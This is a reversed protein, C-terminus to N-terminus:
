SSKKQHKIILQRILMAKTIGLKRSEKELFNLLDPSIFFNFRRDRLKQAKQFTINVVKEIENNNKYFQLILKENKVQKFFLYADNKESSLIITPKNLELSKATLFGIPSSSHTIEFVCLDSQQIMKLPKTLSNESQNKSFYFSLIEAGKLEFEEKIKELSSLNKQDPTISSAFFIKM